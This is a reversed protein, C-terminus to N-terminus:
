KINRKSECIVLQLKGGLKGSQVRPLSQGNAATCVMAASHQADAGCLRFFADKDASTKLLM